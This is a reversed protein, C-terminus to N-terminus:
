QCKILKMMGFIKKIAVASSRLKTSSADKLVPTMWCYDSRCWIPVISCRTHDKLDRWLSRLQTSSIKRKKKKQIYKNICDKYKKDQKSTTPIDSLVAHSGWLTQWVEEDDSTLLMQRLMTSKKKNSQKILTSMIVSQSSRIYIYVKPAKPVKWGLSM